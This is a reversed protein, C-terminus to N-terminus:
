TLWAAMCVLMLKNVCMSAVFLPDPCHLWQCLQKHCCLFDWCDRLGAQCWYFSWSQHRMNYCVFLLLMCTHIGSVSTNKGTPLFLSDPFSLAAYVTINHGTEVWLVTKSPSKNHFTLPDCDLFCYIDVFLSVLCLM